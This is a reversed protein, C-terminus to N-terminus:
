APHGRPWSPPARWSPRSPCPRWPRDTGLCCWRGGGTLRLVNDGEGRLAAIRVLGDGELVLSAGRALLVQGLSNEGASSLRAQPAAVTLQSLQVDLLVVRGSGEILVAQPGQGTGQLIVDATGGVTLLGTSPDFSLGSLDRGIGQVDGLPVATVPRAQEGAEPSAPTGSGAGGAAAGEPATQPAQLVTLLGMLMLDMDTGGGGALLALLSSGALDPAPAESLLLQTLFTQLGPATGSAFRAQLDDIGTFLGGTLLEVARDLPVGGAVQQFLTQLGELAQDASGAIVAGLYLAALAGAAPSGEEAASMVAALLEAGSANRDLGLADLLKQPDQDLARVLWDPLAEGGEEAVAQLLAELDEAAGLDEDLFLPTGDVSAGGIMRGIGEALRDLEEQLAAREEPPAEAARRALRAMRGLSDQVEALVTEGSRLARRGERAREEAQGAKSMLRQLTESVSLGTTRDPGQSKGAAAAEKPKAAGQYRAAALIRDRRITLEAM